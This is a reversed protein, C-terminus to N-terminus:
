DTKEPQDWMNYTLTTVPLEPLGGVGPQAVPETECPLGAWEPHERCAVVEAETKATYYITKTDHASENGTITPLWEEVRNNGADVVYVDGSSNVIIGEPGTFQGNGIGKAGFQDIYEGSTSLAEVRDNNEDTVYLYGNSPNTAIGIPDEFQGNGPGKSGFKGTYEGKENFEEIRNNGTDAVYLKTGSVALGHVDSFQGNGSGAVGVQCSTTCIEFKEKNGDSVGFGIAEIFKGSSNFEDVRNNGLDGVWVDGSSNVAVSVPGELQEAGTGKSGFKSIYEGKENFEEIRDNGYDAVYLDGGYFAIGTPGSFQGNGSGAVGAQCSTTCIEFKEKNGDAVGFGIAETFSGSASFEEVRDNSYDTVWVDGHADIADSSPSSFQGGATGKTGFQATYAPPVKTDKGAAAPAQTEVVNGTSEEYKTTTTLDLGSPDTTESTPMRLTWGLNSQGSYSTTATRKDFEEKSATEAGDITKTALDYTEGKPAGEDYFYKVHNRALVEEGAKGEKGVALKVTHQPGRTDTLQGESNYASKTSLLEAAETPNAEKLATARNDPSLTREVQNDSNYEQTSIGHSPSAVNVTRAQSDMYDVTARKYNSAPWSQPEDPPVIATAYEPDDKQGWKEPEPKGTTENDGLQDPAESGELPVNYEVTWGPQPSRAEGQSLAVEGIKETGYDTFWTNGEPGMTIGLPESGSPEPYETVTGSTTINGVKGTGPEPFWLYGGPGVSITHPHSEKPLTYETISGATTIKGVESSGADVFWLNGDPGAVIGDPRSEAPLSYETVAGSTTIKGVKSTYPNTFWLNGDPGAAIGATGSEKPLAYETITGSTTIKGIKSSAYDTFWLANEKEPGATIGYPGSEKPLAYETVTGSTTIKGIKNSGTETFWLNGDPGPVIGYPSSEKPLSYETVAGSTTSKGIKSTAWDTFWLDGDPGAAVQESRDGSPLPDETTEFEGQSLTVRGLTGPGYDAFWMNGGPGVTIGLPESASPQTYETVEGSTTIAGVKGTGPEPFWLNGDPGAAITHPHSEKPLAYETISGLPTIKGVKSSGADVFWLNGDTGAVIGDPRSEAPLAYETVAGSTTIKGVKSTYPNTFWLNGDSGAAIGATGSEKPLAYETIVGSTTIKGVKSSAYDTFWLNGDPGVTIGYPSSGKPLAYETVAGSTTSKGIKNSGTETFWLDGDPGTVIGYPSSEKPLSYETVAGSTTTKGIKSTAWDTFWVDGDPGEAVQEPQDGSPLSYEKNEPALIMKGIKDTSWDTFWINGEPGVTIGFPWSAWPLSYETVTGSTTIKGIKSTESETFWLNGDPGATIADPNGPESKTLPYETITGSTTIKGIISTRSAENFETFWLNGDPGATIERPESKAPLSYETITGSTTIKGIKCTHSVESYETFWLNGDPGATIGTPGRKEPLSYETVIGSTTIKGIKSTGHEAFWVNGDSGRTIGHPDAKEPLTYETITGSTTIKGIKDAGPETFWLAKETGPGATIGEPHSEAPLSYETTSGSTTVKGIKNTYYEAFWLNGDPGTVIQAPRSDEPLAPYETIDVSKAESSAVVSGGGNTATVQAVLTHGMDSSGPRYNANTAGDIPTCGKGELNCDEWQYAYAVPENSWVGNTVGMRVGPVLSGSLKPAEVNKPAEGDWLKASAPAQTAKILRGTSADGAITGYTFAWSERGPSTLATVHGEADYGYITKLAPSIEPNWEARLRGQKDYAYKAVGTSAMAKTSPNYAIFKVEKLRGLYEGWESENEGTAKTATGYSFELGRCGKAAMELKELEERTCTVSPHPAIELKPEVIKKGAEPEVTEYTDTTTDSPVPGESVTPMWLKAGSPLTFETTTGKGSDQLLYATIESKSNKKAELTLNTDGKPSEFGGGTKIKFFTLGEAGISMVSGDSLVELNALSGLSVTWQPGLPGEEGEKLNRSDYHRTVALSGSGGSVDVDTAGLAFDGSEPNVSGPGMGVPSAHYVNLVFNKSAFNGANDTAVATLTYSGVGLEAGNVSWEGTATCPGSPTTCSGSPKGIEKGDVGLSISKIGSSPVSGEGDTAEVKLHAEVEGLELEEGKSPLGSLAIGHPATSDVKIVHEGEGYEYSSTHEIADNASVRITSEGNPMGGLSAYTLVERQEKACQVGECSSKTLYNTTRFPSGKEKSPPNRAVETQSVGLGLDEATFEIAGSNPGIWGGNAFVNPTKRGSGLEIESSSTNYSVTSHTEKPQSLSVTASELRLGLESANFTGTELEVYRVLNHESGNTSSCEASACLQSHIVGGEQKIPTGYEAVVTSSEYGGSGEFELYARGQANWILETAFYTPEVDSATNLKYIRSDGNTKYFLEAFNGSSGVVHHHVILGSLEERELSWGGGSEGFQWAESLKTDSGTNFEPDVSIPYVYADAQRPVTVTLVDGSVSVSSPVLTGVADHAVPVPISAIMVGEKVVQVGGPESSAAVLSAGSPLGVQFSLQDASRASRMLTELSFGFTSPKAITDSDTQTNAYFVSAGDVTGESGILPVGQGGSSQGGAPTVPTVSLGLGPIQAGESLRKPLRVPVLPNMAEFADGADRLGLDIPVWSGSSGETAMPALSELIGQEGGGLDVRADRDDVFGHYSQGEPLSPPGGAPEDILAPFVEQAVKEAELASLNEYSSASVERVIAAEPNALKAQEAAGVQRGEELGGPVVLSGVLSSARASSLRHARVHSSHRARAHSSHRRVSRSHRVSASRGAWASPLCVALGALGFVVCLIMSRFTGRM